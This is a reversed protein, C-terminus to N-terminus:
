FIGTDNSTASLNSNTSLRSTSPTSINNNIIPNQQRLSIQQLNGPNSLLNTVDDTMKSSFRNGFFNNISETSAM